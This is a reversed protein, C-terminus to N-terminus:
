ERVNMERCGFYRTVFRFNRCDLVMSRRIEVITGLSFFFRKKEERVIFGNCAM